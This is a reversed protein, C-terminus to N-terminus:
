ALYMRCNICVYYYRKLRIISQLDGTDCKSNKKKKRQGFTLVFLQEVVRRIRKLHYALM